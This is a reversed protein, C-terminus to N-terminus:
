KDIFPMFDGRDRFREADMLETETDMTTDGDEGSNTESYHRKPAPKPQNQSGQGVDRRAQLIDQFALLLSKLSDGLAVCFRQSQVFQVANVLDMGYMTMLYAAVVCASRENGSECFVLVKGRRFTAANIRISGDSPNEKNIAQQQYVQLLHDNILKVAKPFAAILEQNGAVDVSASAIGLEAAVKDASLLHAQASRTDRIALLMTIGERSLFDRNKAGVSPGLYLFPTILQVERRCEYKWERTNDFVIHPIQTIVKLDGETIQDGGVGNYAPLSIRQDEPISPIHIHPPSPARWSYEQAPITTNRIFEM